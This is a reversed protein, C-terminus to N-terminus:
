FGVAQGDNRRALKQFIGLRAPDVANQFSINKGVMRVSGDALLFQAGESHMSSFGDAGLGNCSLHYPEPAINLRYYATGLVMPLGQSDCRDWGDVGAWAAAYNEWTREGVAFTCSSGDSLDRMRVQHNAGFLGNGQLQETTWSGNTPDWFDGFSGVYNSTSTSIGFVGAGSEPPWAHWGAGRPSRTTPDFATLSRYNHTLDEPSDSPCRLFNLRTLLLGQRQPDDLVTRLSNREPNLAEHLATQEVFPLLLAAWGWAQAWVPDDPVGMCGPPFAQRSEHYSHLGVGLQRLNNKCQARRATERANQVAPLLLATLIGIIAIVALLEVLTFGRKDAAAQM